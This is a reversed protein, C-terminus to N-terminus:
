LGVHLLWAPIVSLSLQVSQRVRTPGNTTWNHVAVVPAIVDDDYGGALKAGATGVDIATFEIYTLFADAATIQYVIPNGPNVVGRTGGGSSTIPGFYYAGCTTNAASGCCLGSSIAAAATKNNTCTAPSGFARACSFGAQNNFPPNWPV